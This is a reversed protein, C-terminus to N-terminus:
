DLMPDLVGYGGSQRKYIVNIKNKEAHYFVFFQHGLLEMQEIAEMETMPQVQIVKRRYILPEQQEADPAELLDIEEEPLDEAAELEEISPNFRSRHARRKGKFRSIRRYMKDIAQNIVVVLSERDEMPIREEVRLIAGRSHRLTIQAGLLDPGRNSKTRTLDVHLSAINPLYRNLRTVKDEVYSKIKDSVHINNGHITVQM